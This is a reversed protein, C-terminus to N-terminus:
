AVNGYSRRAVARWAAMTSVGFRRGLQQASIDGNAYLRRMERVQDSTLKASGSLTGRLRPARGKAAMDASNDAPLGLFLHEPRCCLKNDCRHCVFMGIPILGYTLEYALRHASTVRGQYNICGYGNASRGAQWEWCRYGTRNVKAWFTEPTNPRM